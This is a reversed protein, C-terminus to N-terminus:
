KAISNEKKATIVYQLALFEELINFTIANIFRRLNLGKEFMGIFQFSPTISEVNLNVAQLMEIMNTKCFFRLHTKDLIGGSPDYRFNGTGYITYLAKFERINPISLIFTGNPKLWNDLRLMTAWPDVLHELVDGCIVVDFYDNQLDIEDKEVDGFIMRDIATNEQNTGPLKFLELGVVEKAMGLEKIALITDAGGAGLELVKQDPNFPLVSLIDKRSNTYYVSDKAGYINSMM